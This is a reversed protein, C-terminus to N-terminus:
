VVGGRGHWDRGAPAWALPALAPTWHRPDSLWVADIAEGALRAALPDVADDGVARELVVIARRRAAGVGHRDLAVEVIGIADAATREVSRVCDRFMAAIPPSAFVPTSWSGEPAPRERVAGRQRSWAPHAAFPDLPERDWRVDRMDPPLFWRAQDPAYFWRRPYRTALPTPDRGAFDTLAEGVINEAADGKAWRMPSDTFSGPGRSFRELDAGLVVRILPWGRARLDDASAVPIVAVDVRGRQVRVAELRGDTLLESVRYIFRERSGGDHYVDVVRAARLVSSHRQSEREAARRADAEAIQTRRKAAHVDCRWAGDGSTRVVELPERVSWGDRSALADSAPVEIWPVGLSDLARAKEPSVANSVVIEIAGIPAGGRHLVVDPRRSEGVRQEVSVVDWGRTWTSVHREDCAEGDAGACRRVISLEADDGTAARM